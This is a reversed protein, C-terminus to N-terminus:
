YQNNTGFIPIIFGDAGEEMYDYLLTHSKDNLIYNCTFQYNDYKQCVSKINLCNTNNFKKSYNKLNHSLQKEYYLEENICDLTNENPKMYDFGIKPNDLIYKEFSDWNLEQYYFDTCLEHIREGYFGGGVYDYVVNVKNFGLEHLSTLCKSMNSIGDSTTVYAHSLLSNYDLSCIDEFSLFLLNKYQELFKCGSKSDEIITISGKSFNLPCLQQQVVPIFNHQLRNNGSVSLTSIQLVNRLSIPVTILPDRTIFIFAADISLLKDMMEYKEKLPAKLYDLLFLSDEDFLHVLNSWDENPSLLSVPNINVPAWQYPSKFIYGM